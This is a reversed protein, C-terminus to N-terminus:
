KVELGGFVSTSDIYVKHTPNKVKKTHNTDGIFNTGNIVVLTDPDSIIKTSGFVSIVTMYADNEIIAGRIDILVEGFVALSNITDLKENEFSKNSSGFVAKIDFEENSIVHVNKAKKKKFRSRFIVNIIIKFGVMILVLSLIALWYNKFTLEDICLLYTFIGIVLFIFSIIRDDSAIVGIASPVIIFLTWWGPFFINISWFDLINGFFIVGLAILCLGWLLGSIIKKM